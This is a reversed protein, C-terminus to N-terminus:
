APLREALRTLAPRPVVRAWIRATSVLAESAPRVPGSPEPALAELAELLHREALLEVAKIRERVAERAGDDIDPVPKKLTRRIARLPAVTTDSWARATDCAAEITDADPKRGTAATWGAWLLLPVCQDNADQLHLCAEGVGPAAYAVVAWDWLAVDRAAGAGVGPGSM